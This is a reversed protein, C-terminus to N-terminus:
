HLLKKILRKAKRIEQKLENYEIGDYLRGLSHSQDCLRIKLYFIQLTEENCIFNFLLKKSQYECKM